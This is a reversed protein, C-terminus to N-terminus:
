GKYEEILRFNDLYYFPVNKWGRVGEEVDFTINMSKFLDTIRKLDDDNKKFMLAKNEYECGNSLTIYDLKTATGCDIGLVDVVLSMLFLM